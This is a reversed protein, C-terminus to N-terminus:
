RPGSAATPPKKGRESHRGCHPCVTTWRALRQECAWCRKTVGRYISRVGLLLGIAVAVAPLLEM